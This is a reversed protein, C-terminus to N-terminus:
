SYLRRLVEKRISHPLLRFGKCRIMYSCRYKFIRKQLRLDRLSHDNHQLGAKLFDEVFEESGEIGNTPLEISNAFLLTKLIKDAYEGIM